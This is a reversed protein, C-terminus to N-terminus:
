LALRFHLANPVPDAMYPAVEVFGLRRYLEVAEALVPLTDLLMERYGARRAEEIVAVALLRGIGRGRFAPRVYLRKMESQGEAFKRLGVCGAASDDAVALLLRGEPAAYEGPMSALERDITRLCGDVEPMAAYEAFLARAMSLHPEREASIVLTDARM